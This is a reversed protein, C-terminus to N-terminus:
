SLVPKTEIRGDIQDAGAVIIGVHDRIGCQKGFNNFVVHAAIGVLPQPHVATPFSTRLALRREVLFRLTTLSVRLPERFFIAHRQVLPDRPASFTPTTSVAASNKFFRAPFAVPSSSM